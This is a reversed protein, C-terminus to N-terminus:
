TEGDEEDDASLIQGLTAYFADQLEDAITVRIGVVHMHDGHAHAETEVSAGGLVFAPVLALEDIEDDNVDIGFEQLLDELRDTLDAGDSTIHMLQAM